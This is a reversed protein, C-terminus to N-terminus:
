ENGETTEKRTNMVIGIIIMMTTLGVKFWSAEYDENTELLYTLNITLVMTGMIMFVKDMM